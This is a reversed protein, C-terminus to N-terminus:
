KLGRKKGKKRAQKIGEAKLNTNNATPIGIVPISKGYIEELYKKFDSKM